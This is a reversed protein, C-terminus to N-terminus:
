TKPKLIKRAKDLLGGVYFWHVVLGLCVLGFLVVSGWLPALEAREIVTNEVYVPRAPIRDVLIFTWFSLLGTVMILSMFRLVRRGQMHAKIYLILYAFIVLEMGAFLYWDRVEAFLAVGVALFAGTLYCGILTWMYRSHIQKLTQALESMPRIRELLEESDEKQPEDVTNSEIPKDNM